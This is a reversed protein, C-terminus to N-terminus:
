TGSIQREWFHRWDSSHPSKPSIHFIRDKNSEKSKGCGVQLYCRWVLKWAFHSLRRTNVLIHKSVPLLTYVFIVLITWVTIFSWIYIYLVASNQKTECCMNVPLGRFATVLVDFVAFIMFLHYDVACQCSTSTITSLIVKKHNKSNEIYDIIM